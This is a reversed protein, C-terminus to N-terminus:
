KLTTEEEGIKTMTEQGELMSDEIPLKTHELLRQIHHRTTLSANGDYGGAHGQLM